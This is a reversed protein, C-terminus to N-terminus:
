PPRRCGCTRRRARAHRRGLAAGSGACSRAAQVDGDLVQVPHRMRDDAADVAGDGAEAQRQHVGAVEDDGGVVGIERRRVAVDRERRVAAARPRQRPMTPVASPSPSGAATALAEVRASASREAEDVADHRAVLEIGRDVGDDVDSASPGTSAIACRSAGPARNARGCATRAARVGFGDLKPAHAAVASKTSPMVANRSLARRMRRLSQRRLSM